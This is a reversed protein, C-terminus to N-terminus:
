KNGGLVDPSHSSEHVLSETIEEDNASVSQTRPRKSSDPLALTSDIQQVWRRESAVYYLRRHQLYASYSLEEGCHECQKRDRPRKSHEPPEM